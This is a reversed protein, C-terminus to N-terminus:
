IIASLKRNETELPLLSEYSRQLRQLDAEREQITFTARELEARLRRNSEYLFESQTNSIEPCHESLTKHLSIGSFSSVDEEGYTSVQPGQEKLQVNKREIELQREILKEELERIKNNRQELKRTM